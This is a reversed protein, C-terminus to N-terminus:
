NILIKINTSETLADFSVTVRDSVRNVSYNGNYNDFLVTVYGPPINYFTKEKENYYATKTFTIPTLNSISQRNGATDEDAYERNRTIQNSLYDVLRELNSVRTDLEYITAM